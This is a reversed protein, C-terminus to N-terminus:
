NTQIQMVGLKKTEEPTLPENLEIKKLILKAQKHAKESIQCEHILEELTEIYIDNYIDNLNMPTENETLRFFKRYLSTLLNRPKTVYDLIM